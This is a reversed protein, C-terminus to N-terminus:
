VLKLVFFRSSQGTRSPRVFPSSCLVLVEGLLTFLQGILHEQQKLNQGMEWAPLVVRLLRLMLVQLSTSMHIYCLVDRHIVYLTLVPYCNVCPLVHYCLTDNSIM